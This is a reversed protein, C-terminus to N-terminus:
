AASIETSNLNSCDSFKVSKLGTWTCGCFVELVLSTTLKRL